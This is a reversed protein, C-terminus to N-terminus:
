PTAETPYHIFLHANSTDRGLANLYAFIVDRHPVDLDGVVTGINDIEIEWHNTCRYATDTYHDGSRHLALIERLREATDPAEDTMTDKRM